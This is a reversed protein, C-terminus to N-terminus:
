SFSIAAYKTSAGMARRRRNFIGLPARPLFAAKGAASKM